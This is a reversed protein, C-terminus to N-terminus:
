GREASDPVPVISARQLYRDFEGHGALGDVLRAFAIESETASYAFLEMGFPGGSPAVENRPTPLIARAGDVHLLCARHVPSGNYLIDGYAQYVKPDPFTWEFTLPEANLSTPMGYAISVRVDPVFVWRQYHGSVELWHRDGEQVEGLVEPAIPGPMSRWDGQSSSLVIKLLDNLNM